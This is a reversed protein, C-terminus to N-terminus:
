RYFLWSLEFEDDIQFSCLSKSQGDGILHLQESVLHDFLNKAATCSDAKPGFCVNWTCATIDAIPPLASMVQQSNSTQKQGMVSM